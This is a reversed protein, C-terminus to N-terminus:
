SDLMGIKQIRDIRTCTRDKSDVEVCIANLVYQGEEAISIKIKDNPYRFKKVVGDVTMGIVSDLPGTMGVDTIFGTGQPLIREDATPVHTHTGFVLSAQGDLFYGMCIKESTAEAHMDVLVASYGSPELKKLIKEAAEFPNHHPQKMFLQGILNILLVKKGQVEIELFGAGPAEEHWNAPRIVVTPMMKLAEVGNLNDFMHNGGTFYQVGAKKMEEITRPSLGAGHTLNEANAIILDPKYKRKLSALEKTIASRGLSGFIDGIILFKLKKSM